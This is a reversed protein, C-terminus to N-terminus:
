LCLDQSRWREWQLRGGTRLRKRNHNSWGDLRDAKKAAQDETHSASTSALHPIQQHFRM